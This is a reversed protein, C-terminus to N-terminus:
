QTDRTVQASYGSQSSRWLHVGSGRTGGAHTIVRQRAMFLDCLNGLLLPQKLVWCQQGEAQSQAALPAQPSPPPSAVCCQSSAVPWWCWATPVSPALLWVPGPRWAPQLPLLLLLLLLSQPLLLLLHLYSGQIGGVGFGEIDEVCVYSHCTSHERVIRGHLTNPAPHNPLCASAPITWTNSGRRTHSLDQHQYRQGRRQM